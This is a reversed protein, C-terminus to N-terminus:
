KDYLLGMFIHYEGGVVVMDDKLVNLGLCFPRWKASM